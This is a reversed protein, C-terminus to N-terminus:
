LSAAGARHEEYDPALGVCVLVALHDGHDILRCYVPRDGTLSCIYPCSISAPSSIPGITRVGSRSCTCVKRATQRRVASFWRMLPRKVSVAAEWRSPKEPGM